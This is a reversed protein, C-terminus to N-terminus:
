GQRKRIEAVVIDAAICVTLAILCIMLETREFAKWGERPFDDRAWTYLSLIGFGCTVYMAATALGEFFKEFSM